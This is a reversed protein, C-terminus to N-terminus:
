HKNQVSLFGKVKLWKECAETWTSETGASWKGLGYGHGGREYIHLECPINHKKMELAYEISNQVPVVGDDISHMMFAPPTKATVQLANSFYKVMDPVPNKGLLSERSGMHTIATDMSIVPYVLLSFDPRASTSDKPEYVKEDFHTSVTSAIHGGASFGMIGIKHPDIGWKKANRRVIRMAEQGDQLPAISKNIMIADDPLRYHLIVATIGLKNLWKAVETGENVFSIGYYGGGPCVVVATGTNKDVPAPYVQITPKTVGMIKIWYVSDIREKYDPNPISGPVKGNWIDIVQTQGFVSTTIMIIGALVFLKKRLNM